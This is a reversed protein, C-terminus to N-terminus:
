LPIPGPRIARKSLPACLLLLVLGFSCGTIIRGFRRVPTELFDLRVEHDGARLDIGIDGIEEDTVIEVRQGDVTATWGPFNFTRILLQDEAELQVHIRRHEPDWREVTVTGGEGSLEAQPVNEPLEDPDSPATIPLTAYNLHEPEPLFVPASIQKAATGASFLVGGILVVLALSGFVLRERRLNNKSANIATQACAGALLAMVLTTISLMRWTFVGIDLKPILLGLPKSVKLMMFSAFSGLVIWLTARRRLEGGLISASSKLRVLVASAIISLTGFIWM